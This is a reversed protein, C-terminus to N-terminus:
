LCRNWIEPPAVRLSVPASVCVEGVLGSKVLFGKAIFWGENRCSGVCAEGLATLLEDRFGLVALVPLAGDGLEDGLDDTSM